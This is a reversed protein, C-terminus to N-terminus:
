FQSSSLQIEGPCNSVSFHPIEPSLLFGHNINSFIINSLQSPFSGDGHTFHVLICGMDLNGISAKILPSITVSSHYCKESCFDSTTWSRKDLLAQACRGRPFEDVSSSASLLESNTWLVVIGLYQISSRVM